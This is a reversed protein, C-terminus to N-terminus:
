VRPRIFPIKCQFIVLVIMKMSIVKFLKCLTWFTSSSRGCSSCKHGEEATQTHGAQSSIIVACRWTATVFLLSASFMAGQKHLFLFYIKELNSAKFTFYEFTILKMALFSVSIKCSCHVVRATIDLSPQLFFLKKKFSVFRTPLSGVELVEMQSLLKFDLCYFSRREILM